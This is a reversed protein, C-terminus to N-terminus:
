FAFRAGFTVSTSAKKVDLVSDLTGSSFNFRQVQSDGYDVHRVDAIVSLNQLVEVEVGGFLQVISTTETTPIAIAINGGAAEPREIVYRVEHDLNAVGFGAGAFGRVREFFQPTDYAANIMASTSSVDSGPRVLREVDNLVLQELDAERRALEIDFRVRGWAGEPGYAGLAVSKFSGTEFSLDLNRPSGSVNEGRIEEDHQFDSGINGQVYFNPEQAAAHSLAVGSAILGLFLKDM